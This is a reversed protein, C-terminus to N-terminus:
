TESESKEKFAKVLDSLSSDFVNQVIYRLIAILEIVVSTIYAGAYKLLMDLIEKNASEQIGYDIIKTSIVAVAVFQIILFLFLVGILIYKHVRKTSENKSVEPSLTNLLVQKNANSIISESNQNHYTEINIDEKSSYQPKDSESLLIDPFLNNFTMQKNDINSNM